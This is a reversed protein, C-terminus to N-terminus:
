PLAVPWVPRARGGEDGEVRLHSIPPSMEGPIKPFRVSGIDSLQSGHASARIVPRRSSLVPRPRLIRTRRRLGAIRGRLIAIQRRLGAIRGRLIAIQRRLGAIRGRLIVIRWRLIAIGRRLIAIRRRL